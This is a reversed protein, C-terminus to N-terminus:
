LSISEDVLEKLQTKARETLNYVQKVSRKMIKAMQAAGMQEFYGLYLVQAYEPKLKKIALMLKQNREKTMLDEEPGTVGAPQREEEEKDFLVAKHKRVYNNALKRGIGYLWTKFTSEQRFSVRKSLLLAFTDMMLDEADEFNHVVEYLFWTLGEKHRILLEDIAENEGLLYRHYLQEDTQFM